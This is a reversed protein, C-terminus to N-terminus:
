ISSVDHRRASHQQEASQADGFNIGDTAAATQESAGSWDGDDGISDTTSRDLNFLLAKATGYM